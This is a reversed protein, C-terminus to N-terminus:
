PKPADKPVPVLKWEVTEGHDVREAQVRGLAHAIAGRRYGDLEAHPYMVMLSVVGIGTAVCFIGVPWLVDDFQMICNPPRTAAHARILSACLVAFVAISIAFVIVPAIIM